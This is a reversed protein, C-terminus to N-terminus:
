TITQSSRTECKRALISASDKDVAILMGRLADVTLNRAAAHKALQEELHELWADSWEISIKIDGQM